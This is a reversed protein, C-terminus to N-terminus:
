TGNTVLIAAGWTLLLSHAVKNWFLMCFIFMVITLNTETFPALRMATRLQHARFDDSDIDHSTFLRWLELLKSSAATTPRQSTANNKM